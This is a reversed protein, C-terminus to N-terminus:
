VHSQFMKDKVKKSEQESGSYAGILELLCCLRPHKVGLLIMARCICLILFAEAQYVFAVKPRSFDDMGLVKTQFGHWIQVASRSLRICLADYANKAKAWPWGGSFHIAKLRVGEQYCEHTFVGWGNSLVGRNSACVYNLVTQDVSVPNPFRRMFQWCANVIDHTRMWDLNLAVLGACVYDNACFQLGHQRHWVADPSNDGFPNRHGLLAKGSDELEKVVGEPSDVFFVDCDSYICRSVYPLLQPLLIRAWTARSGNTWAAMDLFQQMDVVHRVVKVDVHWRNALDSIHREYDIWRSDEIGCDLVHVVLPSTLGRSAYVASASSVLLQTVFGNDSAFVIDIM